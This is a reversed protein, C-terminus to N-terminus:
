SNRMTVLGSPFYAIWDGVGAEPPINGPAGQVQLVTPQIVGPQDAISVVDGTLWLPSNLTNAAHLDRRYTVGSWSETILLGMGVPQVNPDDTVPFEVCPVGATNATFSSAPIGDVIQVVREGKYVTTHTAASGSREASLRVTITGTVPNGLADVWIGSFWGTSWDAPWRGSGMKNDPEAM